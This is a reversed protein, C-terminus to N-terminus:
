EPLPFENRSNVYSTLQM